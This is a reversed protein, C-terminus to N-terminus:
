TPKVRSADEKGGAFNTKSPAAEGKGGAEEKNGLLIAVGTVAALLLTAEGLTDYGRIDLVISCVINAAGTTGVATDLALRASDLNPQGYDALAFMALLMFVLLAAGAVGGAKIITISKM